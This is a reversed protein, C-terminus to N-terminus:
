DERLAAIPNVRTARHAPILVAIVSVVVLLATVIAFTTPDHATVGFLLTTLFRSLAFAAALGAAGGILVLLLGQGMILRLVQAAQAGLAMRIGIESTREAVTFALLGYLGLSALLLACIAFATSVVASLRERALSESFADALMRVEILPLNPDMERVIQAAERALESNRTTRLLLTMGAYTLQRHNYFITPQAVGRLSQDKVDGVVGIINGFPNDPPGYRPNSPNTRRMAVSISASLPDQASFYKKVFAENVIFVQTADERQDDQTFDRGKLVPIGLTKFYEPTVVRIRASQDALVDDPQGLTRFGTGSLRLDSVPIDSAAAASQVGRLNQLRDTVDQFFRVQRGPNYRAVPLEVRMTLVDKSDVGIPDRTLALLSRVLLGAGCLLVITMAVQAVILAKRLFTSATVSRGGNRLQDAIQLRISPLAPALGVLVGTLLSLGITYLLMSQDINIASMAVLNTPALAVLVGLGWRAIFIGAVGGALGFLITEIMLQRVIAGRGAGLSTRIAIERRRNASHAILLNAVNSCAILLLVGVAAFLVLLSVRVEGTLVERAPTVAVSTNENFKYTKALQGAITKIEERATDPNVNPKVRGVVYPLFRGGRQRWPANRDLRFAGWIDNDRSLFYFGAPMVGIVEAPTGDLQVVKGVINPDKSFKREWLSHSIVIKADVRPRDDEPVFTRGLLPKVGVVSFFEYSVVQSKLREPDGQGTLTVPLRNTWAAFSDFTQSERQWDMWNAPNVDMRSGKLSTEHLLMLHDADPFPLPRLLVRDVLSFIATNAGIGVALTLVVATTFAPMKVLRRAAFRIDRVISDIWRHLLADQSFERVLLDNGMARRAAAEAEASAVGRSLLDAKILERHADLQERLDAEVRSRRFLNLVRLTFSRLRHM